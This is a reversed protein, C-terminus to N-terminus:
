RRTNKKKKKKRSANRLAQRQEPNLVEDIRLKTAYMERNIAVQLRAEREFLPFLDKSQDGERDMFEHISDRVAHQQKRLADVREKSERSVNDIKRKQVANLNSVVESIDHRPKKELHGEHQACLPLVFTFVIVFPIIRKM